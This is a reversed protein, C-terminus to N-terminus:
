HQTTKYQKVCMEDIPCLSVPCSNNFGLFTEIAMLIRERKGDILACYM